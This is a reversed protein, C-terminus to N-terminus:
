YSISLFLVTYDCLCSGNRMNKSPIRGASCIVRPMNVYDIGFDDIAIAFGADRISDILTLLNIEQRHFPLM